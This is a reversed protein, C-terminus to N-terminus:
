DHTKNAEGKKESDKATKKNTQISCWKCVNVTKFHEFISKEDIQNSSIHHSFQFNSMSFTHSFTVLM